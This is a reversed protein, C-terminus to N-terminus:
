KAAVYSTAAVEAVKQALEAFELDGTQRFSQNWLVKGDAIRTFVLDVKVSRTARVDVISQCQQEQLSPWLTAEILADCGEARASALPDVKKGDGTGQYIYRAESLPAPATPFISTLRKAFESEFAGYVGSNYIGQIKARREGTISTFIIDAATAANGMAGYGVSKDYNPQGRWLFMGSRKCELIAAKDPPVASCGLSAMAMVTGIRVPIGGLFRM